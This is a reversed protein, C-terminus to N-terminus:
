LFQITMKTMNLVMQRAVVIAVKMGFWLMKLCKKLFEILQQVTLQEPYNMTKEKQQQASTYRYIFTALQFVMNQKEIHSEV